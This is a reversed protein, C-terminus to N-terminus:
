LERPRHAFRQWSACMRTPGQYALPPEGLPATTQADDAAFVEAPGSGSGRAPGTQQLASYDERWTASCGKNPLAPSADSHQCWDSNCWVQALYFNELDAGIHGEKKSQYAFSCAPM